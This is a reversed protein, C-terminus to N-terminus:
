GSMQDLKSLHKQAREREAALKAERETSGLKQFAATVKAMSLSKIPKAVVPFITQALFQRLRLRYPVYPNPNHYISLVLLLEKFEKLNVEFYPRPAPQTTM